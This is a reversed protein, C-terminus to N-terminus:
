THNEHVVPQDYGRVPQFQSLHNAQGVLKLPPKETRGYILSYSNDVFLTTRKETGEPLRNQIYADFYCSGIYAYLDEPTRM